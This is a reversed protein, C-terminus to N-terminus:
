KTNNIDILKRKKKIRENALLKFKALSNCAYDNLCSKLLLQIDIDYAKCYPLLKLVLNDAIGIAELEEYGMSQIWKILKQKPTKM